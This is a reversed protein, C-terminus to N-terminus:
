SQLNLWGVLLFFFHDLQEIVLVVRQSSLEDRAAVNIKRLQHCLLVNCSSSAVLLLAAQFFKGMLQLRSDLILLFMSFSSSLFTFKRVLYACFWALPLSLDSPGTGKLYKNNTWDNKRKFDSPSYQNLSLMDKRCFIFFLFSFVALLDKM